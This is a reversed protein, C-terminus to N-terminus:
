IRNHGPSTTGGAWDLVPAATSLVLATAATWANGTMDNGAIVCGTATATMSVGNVTAGGDKRIMNGTILCGPSSLRIGASAAARIMNGSVNVNGGASTSAGVVIGHNTTTGDILNNAVVASSCGAINIANSGASSLSNGSVNARNSEQALIGGLSTATCRNGEIVAGTAYDARVGYGTAARVTNGRIVVESWPANALGAIRIGADAGSGSIINDTITLDRSTQAAASDTPAYIGASGTGSIRNGSIVSDRWYLARIGVEYAGTIECDRVTIRDYFSGTVISHSGVARGWNGLRASPGFWCNTVSVDACTTGDMDGIASSGSKAVDIELAESTLRSQDATNDVFGEFRCDTIRAGSVANVELGHSGSCDRFIADKVIINACHIFTMINTTATVVGSGDAAKYGNGDWLGGLVTINSHGTYAAFSDNGYFNRFCGTTANVSRITAGYAIVTTNAKCVMFTTVNYTRGAQFVVTGGGATYAADLAAQIAAIDNTVGDGKAGFAHVDFVRQARQDV